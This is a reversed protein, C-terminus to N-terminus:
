AEEFQEFRLRVSGLFEALEQTNRHAGDAVPLIAESMTAWIRKLGGDRRASRRREGSLLPVDQFVQEDLTCLDVAEGIVAPRGETYSLEDTPVEVAPMVAIVDPSDKM